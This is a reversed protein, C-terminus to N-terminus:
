MAVYASELGAPTAQQAGTTAIGAESQTVGGVYVREQSDVALATVRENGEGGQYFAWELVGDRGLKGVIVDPHATITASAEGITALDDSSTTASFYLNGADDIAARAQSEFSDGGFYTGWQRQGNATFRAIYLDSQGGGYREQQADDTVLDDFEDTAGVAYIAGTKDVELDHVGAHGEGFYSGWERQGVANFRALYSNNPGVPDPQLADETAFDGGATAWGALVVGSGSPDAALSSCPGDYHTAWKLDGGLGFKALFGNGQRTQHAGATAIGTASDTQGCIYLDGDADASADYIYDNLPGGFYTGWRLAGSADFQAVFGDNGCAGSDPCARAAQQAGATAIGADYTTFGALYVFDRTPLPVVARGTGDGGGGGLFAGWRQVGASDLSVLAELGSDASGFRGRTMMVGDTSPALAQVPRSSADGGLYTGWASVANDTRFTPNAAAFPLPGLVILLLIGTHRSHGRRLARPSDNTSM